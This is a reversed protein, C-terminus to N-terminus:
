LQIHVLLPIAFFLNHAHLIQQHIEKHIRLHSRKKKLKRVDVLNIDTQRQGNACKRQVTDNSKSITQLTTKRNFM